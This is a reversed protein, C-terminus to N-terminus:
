LFFVPILETVFNGLLLFKLSTFFLGVDLFFMIGKLLLNGVPSLGLEDVCGM